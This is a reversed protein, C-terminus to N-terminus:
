LSTPLKSCKISSWENRVGFVELESMHVLMMSFPAILVNKEQM